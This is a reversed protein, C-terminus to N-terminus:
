RVDGVVFGSDSQTSIVEGLIKHMWTAVNLSSAATLLSAHLNCRTEMDSNLVKGLSLAVEVASKSGARIFANGLYDSSGTDSLLLALPPDGYQKSLVSEISVHNFGDASSLVMVVSAARYYGALEEHNLSTGSLLEVPKWLEDGFRLNIETAREDLQNKLDRYSQQSACEPYIPTIRIFKIRKCFHPFYTLLREIVDFEFNIAKHREMRSVSLIIVEGTTKHDLTESIRSAQESAGAKRWHNIESGMPVAEVRVAHGGNEIALRGWDILATPRNLRVMDLFHYIDRQRHFSVFDAGLLADLVLSRTYDDLQPPCTVGFSSRISIATPLKEPTIALFEKLVPIMSYDNFWVIPKSKLERITKLLHQTYERAFDEIEASWKTSITDLETPEEHLKQSLYGKCFAQHYSQSLPARVSIPHVWHGTCADQYSHSFKNEVCTVHLHTIMPAIARMVTGLGAAATFPNYFGAIVIPTSTAVQAGLSLVDM